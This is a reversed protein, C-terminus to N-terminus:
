APTRAVFVFQYSLARPTLAGALRGAAQLLRTPVYAHNDKHTSAVRVGNAELLERWRRETAHREVPQSQGPFLWQRLHVVPMMLYRSNPVIVLLQAGPKAVRAMESVAQAPDAVHELSGVCSVVDYTGDAFPLSEAVGVHLEAHPAVRRAQGIAVDSIDVGAVGFGRAAAAGLMAGTGCGVDLLRGQTPQLLSLLWDYYGNVANMGGRAHIRNYASCLEDRTLEPRHELTGGFDPRRTHAKDSAM